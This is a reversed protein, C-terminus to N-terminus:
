VNVEQRELVGRLYAVGRGAWDEELALTEELTAQPLTWAELIVNVDRGHARLEGLVEPLRMVGEGAPAGHVHVGLGNDVRRAVYEKAHLNLVHPALLHAVELTGEGAGLSNSTDLVIGTWEGLREVMGALVRARFRDHNEFGLRVGATEFEARLPLLRQIVEDPTPEDGPTDIVVRVFPSGVRRALDLHARLLAPDLGRAGVELALGAERAEGTLRDLEHTTLGLLSLNDAYQVAGVGLDRARRLVDFPTLRGHAVHYPWTYSSVGVKM